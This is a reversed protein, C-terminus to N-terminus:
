VRGDFIRRRRGIRDACHDGGNVLNLVPRERQGRHVQRLLGRRFSEFLGIVPVDHLLNLRRLLIGLSGFAFSSSTQDPVGAPTRCM